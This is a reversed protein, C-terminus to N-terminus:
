AEKCVVWRYMSPSVSAWRFSTCNIQVTRRGKARPLVHVLITTERMGASAVREWVGAGVWPVPDAVGHRRSPGIM